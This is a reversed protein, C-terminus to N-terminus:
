SGVLGVTYVWCSAEVTSADLYTTSTINSSLLAYLLKPLLPSVKLVAFLFIEHHPFLNLSVLPDAFAILGVDGSSAVLRSLSNCTVEITVFRLNSFVVVSGRDLPASAM